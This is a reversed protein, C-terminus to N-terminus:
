RLRVVKTTLLKAGVKVRVFYIGGAPTAGNSDRGNWEVRHQGATMPGSQLTSVLRGVIDYVDVHVESAEPLSFWLATARRFPNPGAVVRSFDLAPAASVGVTGGVVATTVFPQSCIDEYVANGDLDGSLVIEHHMFQFDDMQASFRVTVSDRAAVTASGTM